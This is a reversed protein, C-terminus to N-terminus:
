IHRVALASSSMRSVLFAVVQQPMFGTRKPLGRFRHSQGYQPDPISGLRPIERCPLGMLPTSVRQMLHYLVTLSPTQSVAAHHILPQNNFPLLSFSFANLPQTVSFIIHRKQRVIYAFPNILVEAIKSCYDNLDSRLKQLKDSGAPEDSISILIQMSEMAWRRMDNDRVTGQSVAQIGKSTIAFKM